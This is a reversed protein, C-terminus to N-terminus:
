DAVGQINQCSTTAAGEEKVVHSMLEGFQKPDSLIQKMRQKYCKNVWEEYSMDLYELITGTV